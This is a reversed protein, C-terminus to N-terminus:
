VDLDCISHCLQEVFVM